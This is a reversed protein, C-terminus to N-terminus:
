SGHVCQEEVEPVANYNSLAYGEVAAQLQNVTSNTRTLFEKANEYALQCAKLM